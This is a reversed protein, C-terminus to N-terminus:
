PARQAGLLNGTCSHLFVGIEPEVWVIREPSSQQSLREMIDMQAITLAMPWSPGQVGPSADTPRRCTLGALAWSDYNMAQMPSHYRCTRGWRNWKRGSAESKKKEDM